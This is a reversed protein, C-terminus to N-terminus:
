GERGSCRVMNREAILAIVKHGEPGWACAPVAAISLAIFCVLPITSKKV